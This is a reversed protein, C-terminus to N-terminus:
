DFMLHQSCCLRSAGPRQPTGFSGGESLYRVGAWNSSTFGRFVEELSLPVQVLCKLESIGSNAKM